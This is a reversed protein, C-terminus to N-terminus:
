LMNSDVLGLLATNSKKFFLGFLAFPVACTAGKPIATLFYWYWPSVGWDSSKNEVGNFYFSYLEPWM